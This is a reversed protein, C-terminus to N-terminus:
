TYLYYNLFPDSLSPFIVRKSKGGIVNRCQASGCQCPQSETPHVYKFNYDFNLEEFAEFVSWFIQKTKTITPAVFNMGIISVHPKDEGKKIEFHRKSVLV